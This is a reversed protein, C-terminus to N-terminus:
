RTQNASTFLDELSARRPNVSVLKGGAEHILAVVSAVNTEDQLIIQAGNPTANVSEVTPIERM